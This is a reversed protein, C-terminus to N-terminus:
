SRKLVVITMDDQQPQEGRFKDVDYQIADVIEKASEHSNETIVNIFRDLGFQEGAKNSVEYAGDSFLIVLDGPQLNFTVPQELEQSDLIGLPMGQANIHDIDGNEGRIILSPAHGASLFTATHDDIDLDLLAFTVFKGSQSWFM